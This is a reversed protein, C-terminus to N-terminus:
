AKAKQLLVRAKDLMERWDLTYSSEVSVPLGGVYRVLEVVMDYLEPSAAILRANANGIDVPLRDGGPDVRAITVRENEPHLRPDYGIVLVPSKESIEWPGMTPEVKISMADKKTIDM